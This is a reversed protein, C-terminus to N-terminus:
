ASDCGRLIILGIEPPCLVRLPFFSGLGNSTFCQLSGMRSLGTARRPGAGSSTVTAGLLPIRVQGGHTHGALALSCGLREATAFADPTHVLAIRPRPAQELEKESKPGMGVYPVELGIISLSAGRRRITVAENSLLRMGAERATRAARCPAKWMDHNGRVTLVGDPANALARLTEAARALNAPDTVFDGGHLVLDPKLEMAVEMARQFWEARLTPHVHPDTVHVIRYGDFAMSLGPLSVERAHVRLAGAQNFPSILLLLGRQWVPFTLLNLAHPMGKVHSFHSGKSLTWQEQTALLLRMLIIAGAAATLSWLLWEISLAPLTSLRWWALLGMPLGSPLSLLAAFKKPPFEVFPALYRNHFWVAGGTTAVAVLLGMFIAPVFVSYLL